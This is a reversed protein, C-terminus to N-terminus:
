IEDIFIEVIENVINTMSISIDREEGAMIKEVFFVEMSDNLSGKGLINIQYKESDNIDTDTINKVKMNFVQADKSTKYSFDSFVVGDKDIPSIDLKIEEYNDINDYVKSEINNNDKNYVIFIIISIIIILFVALLFIIMKSNKKNNTNKENKNSM